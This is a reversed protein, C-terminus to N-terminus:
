ESGDPLVGMRRWKEMRRRGWAPPEQEPSQFLDYVERVSLGSLGLMTAPREALNRQEDDPRFPCGDYVTCHRWAGDRDQVFCSEGPEKHHVKPGLFFFSDGTRKSFQHHDYYSPHPHSTNTNTDTNTTASPTRTPISPAGPTRRGTRPSDAITDTDTDTNIHLANIHTRDTTLNPNNRHTQNAHGQNGDDRRWSQARHGTQPLAQRSHDAHNWPGRSRSDDRKNLQQRTARNVPESDQRLAYLALRPHASFAHAM